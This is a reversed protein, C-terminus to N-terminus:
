PKESLRALDEPTNLNIFPDEGQWEVIRADCLKVWDKVRILGGKLAVDLAPLLAVPWFGTLYHAQGPSAAIAPGAGALRERLDLPLLPTDCPCTLVADFNTASAYALVAHLGALPTGTTLLDPITKLAAKEQQSFPAINTNIVLADVQPGLRLTVHEILAKGHWVMLAKDQGMRSSKGGAIIAGLVKM